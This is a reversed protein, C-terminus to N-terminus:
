LVNSMSELYAALRVSRHGHSQRTQLGEWCCFLSQNGQRIGTRPEQRGPREMTLLQGAECRHEAPRGAFVAPCPSVAFMLCFWM